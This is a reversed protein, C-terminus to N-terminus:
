GGLRTVKEGGLLPAGAPGALYPAIWQPRHAQISPYWTNRWYGRVVWQHKYVRGPGDAAAQPTRDRVARRLRLVRVPGPEALGARTHRRREPRPVAEEVQEAVNGQRALLFTTFV